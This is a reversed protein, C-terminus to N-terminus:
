RRNQSWADFALFLMNPEGAEGLPAVFMEATLWTKGQYHIGTTIRVAAKKERVGDFVERWRTEIEPPLFEDLFRGTMPGFVREWEGGARRVFYEVNPAQGRRIEVLGVHATFNRMTAPNLDARAPMDRSQACTHWYASALKTPDRTFHLAWDFQLPRLRGVTKLNSGGTKAMGWSLLDCLIACREM